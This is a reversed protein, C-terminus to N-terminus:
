LSKIEKTVASAWDAFGGSYTYVKLGHDVNVFPFLGKLVKLQTSEPEPRVYFIAKPVADTQTECFQRVLFRLLADDEPLSYGV